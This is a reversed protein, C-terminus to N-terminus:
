RHERYDPPSRSPRTLVSGGAIVAPHTDACSDVEVLQESELHDPPHCTRCRWGSPARAERWWHSGGCCSCWCGPTPDRDTGPWAPPRQLAARQLAATEADHHEAPGMPLGAVVCAAAADAAEDKAQEATAALLTPSRDNCTLMALLKTKFLRVEALLEAPVASAPRLKLADGEARATVGLDHLRALVAAATM